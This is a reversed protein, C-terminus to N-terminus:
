FVANVLRLILQLQEDNAKALSAAIKQIVQGRPGDQTSLIDHGFLAAPPIELQRALADITPFSPSAAGREIRGLMDTSIGAKEALSAQSLGKAKRQLKLNTALIKGLDSM